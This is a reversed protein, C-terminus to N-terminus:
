QKKSPHYNLCPHPKTPYLKTKGVKEPNPVENGLSSVINEQLQTTDHNEKDNLLFNRRKKNKAEWAHLHTEAAGIKEQCAARSVGADAVADLYKACYSHPRYIKNEMKRTHNMSLRQLQQQVKPNALLDNEHSGHPYTFWADRPSQEDIENKFPDRYSNCLNRLNSFNPVDFKFDIINEQLKLVFM